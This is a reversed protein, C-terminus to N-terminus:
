NLYNVVFFVAVMLFFAESLEVNFDSMILIDGYDSSHMQIGKALEQWRYNALNKHLNYWCFILLKKEKLNLEILLIELDHPLSHRSLLRAIM